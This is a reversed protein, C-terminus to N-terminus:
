EYELVAWVCKRNVGRRSQGWAKSLAEVIVLGRGTESDSDATFTKVDAPSYDWVEIVVGGDGASVRLSVPPRGDLVASAAVANSVLESTILAADEALASLGTEALVNVV